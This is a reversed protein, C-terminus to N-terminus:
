HTLTLSLFWWMQSQKFHTSYLVEAELWLPFVPFLNVRRGGSFPFSSVLHFLLRWVNPLLCIPDTIGSLLSVFLALRTIARVNQRSPMSCVTSFPRLDWASFKLQPSLVRLESFRLDSNQLPHPQTLHSSWFDAYPPGRHDQGYVSIHLYLIFRRSTLLSWGTLLSSFLESLEWLNLLLKIGALTIVPSETIVQIMQKPGQFSWM